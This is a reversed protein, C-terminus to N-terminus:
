FFILVLVLTVVVSVLLSGLCGLRNSFFFFVAAPGKRHDTPSPARRLAVDGPPGYGARRHEMSAPTGVAPPRAVRTIDSQVIKERLAPWADGGGLDQEVGPPRRPRGRPGCVLALARVDNM